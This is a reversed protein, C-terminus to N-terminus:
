WTDLLWATRVWIDTTGDYDATCYYIYGSDFAIMGQTDTLAGISTVPVVSLRNAGVLTYVENFNDNIKIFATRLPDGNGANATGVDIEQKAM